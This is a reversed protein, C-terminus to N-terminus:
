ILVFIVASLIHFFDFCHVQFGGLVATNVGDAFRYILHHCFLLGEGLLSCM